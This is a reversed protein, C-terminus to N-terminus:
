ISDVFMGSKAGISSFKNTSGSHELDDELNKTINSYQTINNSNLHKM